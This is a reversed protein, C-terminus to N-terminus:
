QHHVAIMTHMWAPKRAYSIPADRALFTKAEPTFFMRAKANM